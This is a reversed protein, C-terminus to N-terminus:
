QLIYNNLFAPEEPVVTTYCDMGQLTELSWESLNTVEQIGGGEERDLLFFTYGYERLTQYVKEIEEATLPALAIIAHKIKRQQFLGLSGVYASFPHKDLVLLGIESQILSDLRDGESSYRRGDNGQIIFTDKKHACIKATLSILNEFRNLYISNTIAEQEPPYYDFISAKHGVSAAMLANLGFSRSFEVVLSKPPLSDLIQSVRFSRGLFHVGYYLLNLSVLDTATLSNKNQTQLLSMYFSPTTQTRIVMMPALHWHVRNGSDYTSSPWSVPFEFGTESPPGAQSVIGNRYTGIFTHPGAVRRVTILGPSRGSHRAAMCISSTEHYPGSGIIPLAEDWCGEAVVDGCYVINWSSDEPLIEWNQSM